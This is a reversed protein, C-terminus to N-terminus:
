LRLFSDSDDSTKRGFEQPTEQSVQIWNPCILDRSNFAYSRFWPTPAVTLGSREPRLWGSWWSLSSNALVLNPAESMLLLAELPRSDPQEPLVLPSQLSLEQALRIGDSEHQCFIVVRGLRDSHTKILRLSREYYEPALVGLEKIDRYDDARFHLASWDTLGRLLSQTRKFWESKMIPQHLQARVTAEVSLLYKWSQFYGLLQSEDEVNLLDPDFLHDKERILSARSDKRNLRFKPLTRPSPEEGQLIQISNSFSDLEYSRKANRTLYRLDAHLPVGLRQSNALGVGYQFLQNGLGGAPFFTIAM